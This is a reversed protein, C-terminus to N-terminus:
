SRQLAQCSLGTRTGGRALGFDQKRRGFHSIQFPDASVLCARRTRSCRGAVQHGEGAPPEEGAPLEEGTTAEVALLLGGDQQM